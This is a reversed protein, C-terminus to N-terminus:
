RGAMRVGPSSTRASCRPRGDPLLSLHIREVGCAGYIGMHGPGHINGNSAYFVKDGDFPGTISTSRSVWITHRVWGHRTAAVEKTTFSTIIGRTTTAHVVGRQPRDGPCTRAGDPAQVRSDTTLPLGTTDLRTLWLQTKTQDKGFGSGWSTWLNGATDIIPGPDITSFQYTATNAPNNVVMGDDTLQYSGSTSNLTPTTYLGIVCPANAAPVGCFSYFIYYKDNFFVIDPAWVGQNGGSMYTTSWSPVAIRLGTATWVLGNASSACSGGTSCFYFKGDSEIIRSPDHTSNAGTTQAFM